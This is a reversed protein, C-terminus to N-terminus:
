RVIILGSLVSPGSRAVSHSAVGSAASHVKLNFELAVNWLPLFTVAASTTAESFWWRPSLVVEAALASSLSTVSM